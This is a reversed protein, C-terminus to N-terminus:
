PQRPLFQYFFFTCIKRFPIWEALYDVVVDEHNIIVTFQHTGLQEISRSSAAWITAGGISRMDFIM